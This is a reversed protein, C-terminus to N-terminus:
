LFTKTFYRSPLNWTGATHLRESNSINFPTIQYKTTSTEPCHLDQAHSKSIPGIPQGLVDIDFGVKAAYCGLLAFVEFSLNKKEPTFVTHTYFWLYGNGTKSKNPTDPVSQYLQSTHRTRSWRSLIWNSTTESLGQLQVTTLGNQACRIAFNFLQLRRTQNEQSARKSKSRTGTPRVTLVKTTRGPWELCIHHHPQLRKRQSGKWNIM